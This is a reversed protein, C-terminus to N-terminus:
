VYLVLIVQKKNNRKIDLFFFSFTFNIVFFAIASVTVLSDRPISHIEPCRLATHM